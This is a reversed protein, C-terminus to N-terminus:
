YEGAVRYESWMCAEGGLIHSAQEATLGAAAGALPDVQYYDAPALAHDLYYGSSLISMYGLRATQVLSEPGRWSQVVIDKPLDPHFDRGM